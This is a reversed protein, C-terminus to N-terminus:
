SLSMENSLGGKGKRSRRPFSSAPKVAVELGQPGSQLAAAKRWAIDQLARAAHPVHWKGDAGGHGAAGEQALRSREKRSELSPSERTGWSVSTNSGAVAM